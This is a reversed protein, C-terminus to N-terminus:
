EAEQYPCMALYLIPESAPPVGAHIFLGTSKGTSADATWRGIWGLIVDIPCMYENSPVSNRIFDVIKEGGVALIEYYGGSAEEVHRLLLQLDAKDGKLFLFACSDSPVPKGNKDAVQLERTVVEYDLRSDAAERIATIVKPELMVYRKDESVAYASSIRKHLEVWDELEFKNGFRGIPEAFTVKWRKKWFPV